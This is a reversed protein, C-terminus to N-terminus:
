AGQEFMVPTLRLRDIAARAARREAALENLTSSVFVRIRRDPTVIHPAPAAASAAPAEAAAAGVAHPVAATAVRLRAGRKERRDALFRAISTLNAMITVIVGVATLLAIAESM